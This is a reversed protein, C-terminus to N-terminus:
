FIYNSKIWSRCSMRLRVVREFFKLGMLTPEGGQWSFTIEPSQQSEIYQRIYTELLDDGMRFRSGPYMTEKSLFYCYECDLNCKAGTPKVRIHFPRTSLTVTKKEAV